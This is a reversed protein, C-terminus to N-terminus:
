WKEHNQEYIYIAVLVRNGHHDVAFVEFFGGRNQGLLNTLTKHLWGSAMYCWLPRVFDGVIPKRNCFCQLLSSTEFMMPRQDWLDSMMHCYNTEFTLPWIAITPRLPWIVITPRMPWLDYPLVEDWLDSTMHYYKTESTMHCYKTEYTLPWSTTPRVYSIDSVM